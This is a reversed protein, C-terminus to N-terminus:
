SEDRGQEQEYPKNIKVETCQKKERPINVHQLEKERLFFFFLGYTVELGQKALSNDGKVKM